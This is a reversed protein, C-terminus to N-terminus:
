EGAAELSRPLGARQLVTPHSGWWFQSLEPPTPDSLSTLALRRQMQVFTADDHTAEISTRDARAEIARSVTNQAPSVVFAGVGALALVLVVVAPDAAGAVGARRRVPEADLILALLAIAGVSGVAALTTGLLVDHDKAHGLEHAIVVRAEAPTLDTLLNDYVVVRRTNGLGSVYANVTTTRRSADAVLVDDVHVGERDALRLISQKFPGSSMPTFHNFLPEVVVPYLFSGALSLVLAIGGAWAFWWRPSRRAAAVVVLAVVATVVVAVALSTLQDVSWGVWGQRSIAYRRDVVHSAIGFPLTVLREALLVVLVGLPVALWWRRRAVVRRTIRGGRATLAFALLLLLSLFYSTWGLGRKLWSYREARAIQGPTFLDSARAPVLTGGPVWSWPVLWLALVAVLAFSALVTLVAPRRALVPRGPDTM